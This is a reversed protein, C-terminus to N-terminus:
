TQARIKVDGLLSVNSVMFIDRPIFLDGSHLHRYLANSSNGSRSQTFSLFFNDAWTDTIFIVIMKKMQCGNLQRALPLHSAHFISKRTDRKQVFCPDQPVRVLWLSLSLFLGHM